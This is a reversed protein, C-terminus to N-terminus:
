EEEYEPINDLIFKLGSWDLWRDNVEALYRELREENMEKLDNDVLFQVAVTKIIEDKYSYLLEETAITQCALFLDEIDFAKVNIYGESIVQQSWKIMSYYHQELWKLVYEKHYDASSSAFETCADEFSSHCEFGYDVFNFLLKEDLDLVGVGLDKKLEELYENLNIMM